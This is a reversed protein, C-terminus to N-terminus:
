RGGLALDAAREGRETEAEVLAVGFDSAFTERLESCLVGTALAAAIALAALFRSRIVSSTIPRRARPNLARAGPHGITWAGDRTEVERRAPGLLATGSEGGLARRLGRPPCRHFGQVKRALIRGTGSM